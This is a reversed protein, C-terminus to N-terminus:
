WGLCPSTSATTLEAVRDVTTAGTYEFTVTVNCDRTGNPSPAVASVSVSVIDADVTYLVLDGNLGAAARIGGGNAFSADLKPTPAPSTVGLPGAARSV